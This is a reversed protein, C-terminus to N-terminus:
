VALALRGQLNILVHHVQASKAEARQRSAALVAQLSSGGGAQGEAGEVDEEIEFVAGTTPLAHGPPSSAM